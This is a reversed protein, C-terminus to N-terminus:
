YKRKNKGYKKNRSHDNQYINPLFQINKKQSKYYKNIKSNRKIEATESYLNKVSIGQTSKLHSNEKDLISDNKEEYKRQTKLQISIGNNNAKDLDKSLITLNNIKNSPTLNNDTKILFNKGRESNYISYIKNTTNNNNTMKSNFFMKKPSKVNIIKNDETINSSHSINSINPLSNNINKKYM